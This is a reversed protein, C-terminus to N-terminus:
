DSPPQPKVRTALVRRARTLSSGSAALAVAAHYFLDAAEDAARPGDSDACAVILEAAEEGLKKLRLNRDALLKATYSGAVPSHRRSEIVADLRAIHDPHYAGFCSVDGTHCAPGAPRVLALVSDGDCDLRLEVIRQVNGSTAGKHWLGRQRSRFWMEKTEISKTMADRDAEAVMLVRGDDADQAVVVVVGNRKSFDVLDLDAVVCLVSGAIRNQGSV